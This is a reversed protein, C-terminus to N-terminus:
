EEEDEELDDDEDEDWDDDEEDDYDEDDEDEFDDDEDEDWDDDEEDDDDEDEDELDEDEDWDEEDEKDADEPALSWVTAVSNPDHVAPTESRIFQSAALEQAPPAFIAPDFIWNDTIAVFTSEMRVERLISKHDRM